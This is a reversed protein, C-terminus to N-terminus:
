NEGPGSPTAERKGSGTRTIHKLAKKERRKFNNAKKKEKKLACRPLLYKPKRTNVQLSWEIDHTTKKQKLTCKPYSSTIYTACFFARVFSKTLRNPKRSYPSVM